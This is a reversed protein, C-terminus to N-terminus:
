TTTGIVRDPVREDPAEAEGQAAERRACDRHVGFGHWSTASRDADLPSDCLWCLGDDDPRM